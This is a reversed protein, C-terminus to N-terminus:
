SKFIVNFFQSTIKILEFQKMKVIAKEGFERRLKENSMLQELRRFYLNHNNQPILFGNIGDDILESPGAICDFSICACGAAMAEALANPFGESTSTFAFISSSIYHNDIDSKLGLFTVDKDINLEKTLEKLQNAKPGNGIFNIAWEKRTEYNIKAFYDLLLSQNKKGGISGVNLIIKKREVEYKSYIKRIPNPIVHFFSSKYKKQLIKKATFTQVIVGDTFKYFVPNVLGRFGKISSYPSARNSVFIKFGSLLTSMIVFANYREGFSLIADPKINMIEKRLWFPITISKIMVKLLRNLHYFNYDPQIIRVDEIIKYFPDIKTLTIITVCVDFSWSLQNALNSAVRELGGPRLSPVVIVLNTTKTM